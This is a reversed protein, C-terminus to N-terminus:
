RGEVGAFLQTVYITGDSGVALGVGSVNFAPKEINGRHVPSALWAEMAAEPVEDLERGEHKSVNEGVRTSGAIERYIVAVRDDFGAHGVPVSGQAMKRSHERALKALKADPVLVGLGISQRHASVRQEIRKEVAPGSNAERSAAPLPGARTAPADAHGASVACGIGMWLVLSM